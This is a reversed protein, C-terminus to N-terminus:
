ILRVAAFFVTFQVDSLAAKWFHLKTANADTLLLVSSTLGFCVADHSLASASPLKMCYGFLELQRLPAMKLFCERSVKIWRM